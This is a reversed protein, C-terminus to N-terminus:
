MINFYLIIMANFYNNKGSLPSIHGSLLVGRRSLSPKLINVLLTKAMIKVRQQAATGGTSKEEEVYTCQCECWGNKVM